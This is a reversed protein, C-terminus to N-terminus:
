VETCDRKKYRSYWAFIKEIDSKELDIVAGGGAGVGSKVNAEITGLNRKRQFHSERTELSQIKNKKLHITTRKILRYRLSLQEQDLVWGADKYKLVAWITVLALLIFSLLGWVKLFIISTIVIPVVFYWTRLIYRWMARRPAPIFSNVFVYEPLHPEIIARIHKVKAVPLLTVNAGELNASAGGSSEIYVTGYGLIQRIITESIYIGQIRKLPITIQRKELLGQSIIFDKETKMVTFNAYKLMTMVLSILWAVFFGIFVLIAIFFLNHVAWKELGGFLRKFPILDNLQSLLALVASLVVGVGGSTLSLIVLQNFSIKYVIQSEQNFQSEEAGDNKAAAVHDQILKAEEKSIAALVAEAEEAGGSGATEIQLKVLRFLRQLIGETLDISQIREFPIYRKKRIFIGYEIRLENSEFRYTYRLWSLIGTIFTILVVILSIILSGALGEKGHRGVSFVFAIGPLILGRLRKGTQIVSAIPHLRKPKSM